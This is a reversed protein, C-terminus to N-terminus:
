LDNEAVAHRRARSVGGSRTREFIYDRNATKQTFVYLALPNDRANIYDVWEAPTDLTVVPLIPGFIEDAPVLPDAHADIHVSLCEGKMLADDEQVGTVVTVAIRRNPADREGGIVIEGKTEDLLKSLRKFHNDTVIKSYGSSKILPTAATAGKAPPNFEDLAKRFATIFKPQM